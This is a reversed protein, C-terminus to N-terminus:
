FRTVVPHKQALPNLCFARQHMGRAKEVNPLGSSLCIYKFTIAADQINRLLDQSNM